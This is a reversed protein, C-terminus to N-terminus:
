LCNKGPDQPMDDCLVFGCFSGQGFTTIKLKIGKLDTKLHVPIVVAKCETEKGPQLTLHEPWSKIRQAQEFENYKIEVNVSYPVPINILEGPKAKSILDTYYDNLENKEDFCIPHLYEATGNAFGRTPSINEECLNCPASQVFGVL